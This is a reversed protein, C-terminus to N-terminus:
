QAKQPVHNKKLLSLVEKYIKIKEDLLQDEYQLLRFELRSQLENVKAIVDRPQQVSMYVAMSAHIETLEKNKREVKKHIPETSM